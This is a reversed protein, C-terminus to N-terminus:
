FRTTPMELAVIRVALTLPIHADEFIAELLMLFFCSFDTERLINWSLCVLREEQIMEM